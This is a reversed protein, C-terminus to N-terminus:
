VQPRPPGGLVVRELDDLVRRGGLDRVAVAVVRLPEARGGLRPSGDDIRTEPDGGVIQLVVIVAARQLARNDEDDIVLGALAIRIAGEVADPRGLGAARAALAPGSRGPP